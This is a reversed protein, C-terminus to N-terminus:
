KATLFLVAEEFAKKCEEQTKGEIGYATINSDKLTYNSTFQVLYQLGDKEYFAYYIYREEDKDLEQSYRTQYVYHVAVAKENLQSSTSSASISKMGAVIQTINKNSLLSLDHSAMIDLTCNDYISSEFSVASINNQGENQYINCRVSSDTNHPLKLLSYVFDEKGLYRQLENFRNEDTDPEYSKRSFSPKGNGDFVPECDRHSGVSDYLAGFVNLSTSDVDKIQNYAFFGEDYKSVLVEKPIFQIRDQYPYAKNHGEDTNNQGQSSVDSGATIHQKNRNGNILPISVAVFALCAAVSIVRVWVSINKKRPTVDAFEAIHKDSIGGMADLMNKKKENM